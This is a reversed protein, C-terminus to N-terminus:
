GVCPGMFPGMAPDAKARPATRLCQRPQGRRTWIPTATAIRTRFLSRLIRATRDRICAPMLTGGAFLLLMPLPKM